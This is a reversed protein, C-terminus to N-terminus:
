GSAHDQRGLISRMFAGAEQDAPNSSAELAAAVAAQDEASRNQNFKFTGEMRAIPIEFAVLAKLERDMIPEAHSVDWPPEVYSEHERTLTRLQDKVAPAETIIHPMGYVHVAAYNWTPVTVPDGYWSPSVYAHPGQFVVLAESESHFNRWHPNARAMHAVLVGQEGRNRELRFPLHTALAGQPTWSVLVAFSYRDILEYLQQQDEVRYSRPTYM